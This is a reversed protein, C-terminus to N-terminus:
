NFPTTGGMSHQQAGSPPLVNSWMDGHSNDPRIKADSVMEV